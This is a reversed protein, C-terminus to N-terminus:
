IQPCKQSLEFTILAQTCSSEELKSHRAQFKYIAYFNLSFDSFHSVLKALKRTFLVVVKTFATYVKTHHNKCLFNFDM